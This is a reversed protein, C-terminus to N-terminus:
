PTGEPDISEPEQSQRQTRVMSGYLLASVPILVVMAVLRDISSVIYGMSAPLSVYSAIAAASAEKLGLGAPAIGALSAIVGALTLVVAQMSTVSYEFSAFIAYLRFAAVLLGLAETAMAHGFLKAHGSGKLRSRIGYYSLLLGGFGIIGTLLGGYRYGDLFLLVGAAGFAFAVWAVTLIGTSITATGATVGMRRIAEIRVLFSGPIPLLNAANSVVSIDIAQRLRCGTGAVRGALQIRVANVLITGPVGIVACTVLWVPKRLDINDPLQVYALVAGAVFAILALVLGWRSGTALRRQRATGWDQVAQLLRM